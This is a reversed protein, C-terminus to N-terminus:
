DTTRSAKFKGEAIWHKVVTIAKEHTPAHDMDKKFQKNEEEVSVIPETNEENQSSEEKNESNEEVKCDDGKEKCIDDKSDDTIKDTDRHIEGQTITSVINKFAVGSIHLESNAVISASAIPSLLSGFYIVFAFLSFVQKSNM